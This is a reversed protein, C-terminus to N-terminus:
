LLVNLDRPKSLPHLIQSIILYNQKVGFKNQERYSCCSLSSPKCHQLIRGVTGTLVILLSRNLSVYAKMFNEMEPTLILSRYKELTPQMINLPYMYITTWSIGQHVIFCILYTLCASFVHYLCSCLWGFKACLYVVVKILLSSSSIWRDLHSTRLIRFAFKLKRGRGQMTGRWLGWHLSRANEADFEFTELTQWRNTLTQWDECAEWVCNVIGAM